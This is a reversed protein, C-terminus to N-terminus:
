ILVLRPLKFLHVEKKFDLVLYPLRLIVRLKSAVSYKIILKYAFVAAKLIRSTLLINRM